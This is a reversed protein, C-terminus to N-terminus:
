FKCKGWVIAVILISFLKLQGLFHGTYMGLNMKRASLGAEKKLIKYFLLKILIAKTGLSQYM